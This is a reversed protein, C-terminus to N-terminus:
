ARGSGRRFRRIKGTPKEDQKSTLFAELKQAADALDSGAVINYREFVSRTKHGTMMMAVREPIGARVLNRVASRRFDHLLKGPYGAKECAASWALRFRYENIASGDPEHFVLTVVKSTERSLTEAAAVQKTLLDKLDIIADFYFSRPEDNKTTGADLRVIGAKLDVQGVRMPLIESMVRWGTIYAFTVVTQLYAPLEARVALFQDREFFGTRVNREKLM